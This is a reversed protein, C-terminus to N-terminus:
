ASERLILKPKPLKLTGVSSGTIMRLLKEMSCRGLERFSQEVTTLAPLTYQCGPINDHGILLYDRGIKEMLGAKGFIRITDMALYDNLAFIGTRCNGRTLEALDIVGYQHFWTSQIVYVETEIGRERLCDSFGALRQEMQWSPSPTLVCFRECDKLCLHEAAMRGAGYNDISLSSYYAGSPKPSNLLLIKGGQRGYEGVAAGADEGFSDNHMQYSIIGSGGTDRVSHIFNLYDRSDLGFYFNCQFDNAAAEESIGIMLDAILSYGYNPLFVGVAASRGRALQSAAHNRRYNMERMVAEIKEKTADAVKQDPKPNLARSVVSLSFGTKEAIDKLTVM